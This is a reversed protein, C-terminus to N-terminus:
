FDVHGHIGSHWDLTVAVAVSSEKPVVTGNNLVSGSIIKFQGAQLPQKLGLVNETISGDALKIYVVIQWLQEKADETIFPEDTDIIVKTDNVGRSPFNVSAFCM